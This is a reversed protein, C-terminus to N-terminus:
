FEISVGISPLVGISENKEERQERREWRVASINKRGYINQIDIYTILTIKEFFWKKDVRIDLSHFDPLRQSNYNVVSQSGDANFPTYPRGSAYRFKFSTEWEENFIYGGSLNAIWRQDYSGSREIGDLAKYDAQSYTLSLIGYLPIDSLKKQVSLEVGRTIGTGLSALPELGFAAFNDESGGFGAGTNALILYNRIKSVPYNGYDKYFAEIKLQTDERLRYDIGGVYQMVKLADLSENSRDGVLWIYSPFQRYVGTSFSIGLKENVKYAISGRPSFYTSNSIGNFYDVRGGINLTIFPPLMQIFNVYGGTKWFSDETKLSDIPLLEGFTTRFGPLKIDYETKIYDLDAGAMLESTKATKILMEAKLKNEAERSKNLFIPNLLSDRQFYDYDVFNRSLTARLFGNPLLYQYTFGTGYQTQNSGLVRSNDYRKEDTDNFFKTNDFAGIFLYSLRSNKGIRVDYKALADWYEPVFGFGAAKFIFDLYSRRVSLIFNNNSSIPGELNFGFQTASITGKGGIRDNRGDRLDIRLVSSLKDGYLVPFAGTSFASERVFDLNIFSLPGGTAGQSGFHNINPIEIGDVIYLNESPAGGRVILDNRGADAQAVGPLVSLARVVDEFGGASRRIEEFEFSRTSVADTPDNSFFDSTVVVNELEIPTEVLDIEVSAPKSNSVVIDSKTQTQYGIASIRISYIGPELGSITFAGETDTAAGLTTGTVLVNAFPVPQNTLHHLVRGTIQGRNQAMMGTLAQVAILLALLAIKKIKM